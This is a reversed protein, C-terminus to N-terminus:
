KCVVLSSTPRKQVDWWLRWVCKASMQFCDATELLYHSRVEETKRRLVSAQKQFDRELKLLEYQRKRDQLSICALHLFNHTMKIAMALEVSKSLSCMCQLVVFILARYCHNWQDNCALTVYQQQFCSATLSLTSPSWVKWWFPKPVLLNSSVVFWLSLIYCGQASPPLSKTNLDGTLGSILHYMRKRKIVSSYSLGSPNLQSVM